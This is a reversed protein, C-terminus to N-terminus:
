TSSGEARSMLGKLFAFGTGAVGLIAIFGNPETIDYGLLWAALGGAVAAFFFIKLHAAMYAKTWPTKPEDEARVIMVIVAAVVLLVTFIVIDLLSPIDM